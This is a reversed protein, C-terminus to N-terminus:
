IFQSAVSLRILGKNVADGDLSRIEPTLLFSLKTILAQRWNVSLCQESHPSLLTKPPGIIASALIVVSRPAPKLHYNTPLQVLAHAQFAPIPIARKQL